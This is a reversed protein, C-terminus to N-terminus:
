TVTTMFHSTSGPLETLAIVLSRAPHGPDSDLGPLIQRMVVDMGTRPGVWGGIWHTCGTQGLVTLTTPPREHINVDFSPELAINRLRHAACNQLFNYIRVNYNSFLLIKHKTIIIRLVGVPEDDITKNM